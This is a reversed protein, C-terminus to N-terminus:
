QIASRYLMTYIFRCFKTLFINNNNPKSNISVIDNVLMRIMTKYSLLIRTISYYSPMSIETSKIIEALIRM